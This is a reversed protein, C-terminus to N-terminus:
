INKLNRIQEELGSKIKEIDTMSKIENADQWLYQIRDKFLNYWYESKDSNVIINPVKEMNKQCKYQYFSVKIEKTHEKGKVGRSNNLNLDYAVFSSPFVVALNRLQLKENELYKVVNDISCIQTLISYQESLMGYIRDKFKKEDKESGWYLKAMEEIVEPASFLINLEKGQELLKVIESRYISFFTGITIGSVFFQSQAKNFFNTIDIEGITFIYDKKDKREKFLGKVKRQLISNKTNNIILEVIVIGLLIVMSNSMFSENIGAIIGIVISAFLFIIQIKGNHKEILNEIRKKCGKKM